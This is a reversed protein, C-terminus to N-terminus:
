NAKDATELRKKEDQLIEKLSKVEEQPKEEDNKKKKKNQLAAAQRNKFRDVRGQVDVFKMEGTFFPHCQDCIDVQIEDLSSGTLFTAGCACSIKAQHNWQPHINQKM